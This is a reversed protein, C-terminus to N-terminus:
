FVLDLSSNRHTMRLRGIKTTSDYKIDTNRYDFSSYKNEWVYNVAKGTM